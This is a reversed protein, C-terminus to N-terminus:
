MYAALIDTTEGKASPAGKDDAAAPKDEKKGALAAVKVLVPMAQGNAAGVVSAFGAILAQVDPGIGRLYAVRANTVEKADESNVQALGAAEKVAADAVLKAGKLQDIAKFTDQAVKLLKGVLGKSLETEKSEGIFEAHLNAAVSKKIDRAKMFGLLSDKGKELATRPDVGKSVFKGVEVSTKAANIAEGAIGAFNTDALKDGISVKVGKLKDEGVGGIVSANRKLWDERKVFVDKLRTWLSGIYSVFKNWWEKITEAAKKFFEGVAGELLSEDNEVLCKHEVRALAITLNHMESISQSTLESLESADGIYADSATLEVNDVDGEAPTFSELIM